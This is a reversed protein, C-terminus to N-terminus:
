GDINASVEIPVEILRNWRRADKWRWDIHFSGSTETKLPIGSIEITAGITEEFTEIEMRNIVTKGGPSQLRLEMQQVGTPAGYLNMFLCYEAFYQADSTVIEGSLVGVLIYRGNTERHISECLVANASVQM